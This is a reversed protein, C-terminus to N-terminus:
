LLAATFIYNLRMLVIFAKAGNPGTIAYSNGNVPLRVYHTVYRSLPNFVVVAFRDLNSQECRSVNM